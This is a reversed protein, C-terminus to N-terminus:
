RKPAPDIWLETIARRSKVHVARVKPAKVGYGRMDDLLEKMRKAAKAASQGKVLIRGRSGDLSKLALSFAEIDFPMSVCGSEESSISHGFLFPKKFSPERVRASLDSGEEAPEGAGAPLMWFEILSAKRVPRVKADLRDMDFRRFRAQALFDQLRRLAELPASEGPHVLILGRGGPSGALEAMFNDMRARADECQVKEFRDLLEATKTESQGYLTAAGLVLCVCLLLTPRLTIM